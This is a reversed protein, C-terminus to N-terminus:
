MIICAHPNEDSFMASTESDYVVISYPQEQFHDYDRGDYGHMANNYSSTSQSAFFNVASQSHHYKGDNKHRIFNHIQPNYPYPWLEARRGTKRVTKLVKEQDVWGMVSVKQLSMDIDVEDVGSIYASGNILFIM